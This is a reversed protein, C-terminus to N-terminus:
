EEEDPKLMIGKAFDCTESPTLLPFATLEANCLTIIQQTDTNIDAPYNIVATIEFNDSDFLWVKSNGYEIAGAGDRYSTFSFEKSSPENIDLDISKAESYADNEKVTKVLKGTIDLVCLSGNIDILNVVTCEHEPLTENDGTSCDFIYVTENILMRLESDDPSWCVADIKYYDKQSLLTTVDGTDPTITIIHGVSEKDQVDIAIYSINTSVFFKRIREYGSKNADFIIKPESKGDYEYLYNNKNDKLYLKGEKSCVVSQSIDYKDNNFETIIKGTETDYVYVNTYSSLALKNDGLFGIITARGKPKFTSEVSNTKADVIYYLGESESFSSASSLQGIVAKTQSPNLLYSTKNHENEKQGKINIQKANKNKVYRYLTTTTKQADTVAYSGNCYSAKKLNSHFDNNLFFTTEKKGALMNSLSVMIEYGGADTFLIYGKDSIRMELVDDALITKSIIQGNDSNIIVFQNGEIAVFANIDIGNANKPISGLFIEGGHIETDGDFNFVTNGNKINLAQFHATSFYSNDTEAAFFVHGSDILLEYKYANTYNDFKKNWLFKFNNNERSYLDLAYTNGTKYCVALHNNQYYLDCTLTGSHKEIEKIDVSAIIKGDSPSIVLAKKLTEATVGDATAKSISSIGSEYSAYEWAASGDKPDIKIISGKKKDDVDGDIKLYVANETNKKGDPHFTLNKNIILSGKIDFSINEIKATDTTGSGLLHDKYISIDTPNTKYEEIKEGTETDWLYSNGIDSSFLRKGGDLMVFDTITDKQDFKAVATFIENEYAGSLKTAQSVATNQMPISEEESLELSQVSAALAGYLDGNKELEVSEKALSKAQSINLERVDNEIQAKQSSITFLAALSALSIVALIAAVTVATSVRRRNKRRQDRRYLEDYSCGYLSAALRLFETKLLKQSQSLTPASVNAALPEIERKEAHFGYEDEVMVTEFRLAEPFTVTGDPSCLLTLINENSYGHLSKFYDIEEMCWRSKETEASCVVILYRSQALAERISSGLDVSTPLETQDRFLHLRQGKQGIGKPPVYGELLKQLKEAIPKDPSLHRYTIFADYKYNINM